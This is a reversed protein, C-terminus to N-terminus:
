MEEQSLIEVILLYLVDKQGDDRSDGAAATATKRETAGCCVAAVANRWRLLSRQVPGVCIVQQFWSETSRTSVTGVSTCQRAAKMILLGQRGDRQGKGLIKAELVAPQRLGLAKKDLWKRRTAQKASCPNHMTYSRDHDRDAQTPLPRLKGLAAREAQV